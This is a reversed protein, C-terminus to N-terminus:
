LALDQTIVMLHLVSIDVMAGGLHGQAEELCFGEEGWSPGRLHGKGQGKTGPEEEQM